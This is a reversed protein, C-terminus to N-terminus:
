EAVASSSGSRGPHQDKSTFHALRLGSTGRGAPFSGVYCLFTSRCMAGPLVHADGQAITLLDNLDCCTVCTYNRNAWRPSALTRYVSQRATRQFTPPCSPVYPFLWLEFDRTVTTVDGNCENVKPITRLSHLRRGHSPLDPDLRNKMPKTSCPKTEGASHGSDGHKWGCERPAIPKARHM